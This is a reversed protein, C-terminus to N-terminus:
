ADPNAKGSWREQLEPLHKSGTLIVVEDAARITTDEDVHAFHEERYLCIARAGEPLNLAKITGADEEKAAFSFLRAEHKIVTSIETAESGGVLDM